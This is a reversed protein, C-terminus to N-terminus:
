SFCNFAPLAIEDGNERIANELVPQLWVPNIKTARVSDLYENEVIMKVIVQKLKTVTSDSWTAVWDDQEQLRLFYSNLDIKGFTTDSLRYKEGVVTIMFDWVLRYQKMMAYLCIQKAVDAPHTAIAQTLSKDGLANLRRLCALAMRKVSKETPYQFLNDSVIREVAEDPSCNENILKATVRMEYFLFQERTIAANYPSSTQLVTKENQVM